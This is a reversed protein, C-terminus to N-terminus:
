RRLWLWSNVLSASVLLTFLVLETQRHAASQKELGALRRSMKSLQRRLALVEVVGVDEGELVIGSDHISRKSHETFAHDTTDAQTCEPFSYRTAFKQNIAQLLRQSVQRGVYKAANLVGHSSLLNPDPGTSPYLPVSCPPGADRLSHQQKSVCMASSSKSFACDSMSRRLSAERTYRGREWGGTHQDQLMGLPSPTHLAASPVIWSKQPSINLFPPRPGLDPMDALSLRDPLHMNFSPPPDDRKLEEMGGLSPDAVKLRDPVRMQQSIAETFCLDYRQWTGEAPDGPEAMFASAAM